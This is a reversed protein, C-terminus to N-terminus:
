ENEDSRQKTLDDFKAAHPNLAPRRDSESVLTPKPDGQAILAEAEKWDDKGLLKEVQTPSKVVTNFTQVHSLRSLLFAEATRADAWSRPPRRGAVVKLGPTPRGALADSLVIAHQDDMWKRFLDAHRVVYARRDPSLEPLEPAGDSDLDDFKLGFLDLNFRALEPCALRM